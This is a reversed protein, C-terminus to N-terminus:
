TIISNQSMMSQNLVSKNVSVNAQSVSAVNSQNSPNKMLREFALSSIPRGTVFQLQYKSKKVDKLDYVVIRGANTGVAITRGDTNFQITTM